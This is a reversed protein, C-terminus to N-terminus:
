FNAHQKGIDYTIVRHNLQGRLESEVKGFATWHPGLWLDDPRDPALLQEWLLRIIVTAWFRVSGVELRAQSEPIWTAFWKRHAESLDNWSCCKPRFFRSMKPVERLMLPWEERLAQGPDLPNKGMSGGLWRLIKDGHELGEIREHEKAMPPMDYKEEISTTEPEPKSEPQDVDPQDIAPQDIAPQDIAPQDIAPQDIAPQDIAPQDVEPRDGLTSLQDDVPQDIAPQDVDPQDIAPQDVEPRDIDPQDIDPQDVAPQDADPLGGPKSKSDSLQIDSHPKLPSNSVHKRKRRRRSTPAVSAASKAIKSAEATPKM